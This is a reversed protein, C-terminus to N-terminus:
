MPRPRRRISVIHRDHVTLLRRAPDSYCAIEFIRDRLARLGIDVASLPLGRGLYLTSVQDHLQGHLEGDDAADLAWTVRRLLKQRFDNDSPSSSLWLGLQTGKFLEKLATRLPATDASRAALSWYTLGGVEGPFKYEREVAVGGNAIFTLRAGSSVLARSWFRSIAERVDVSRLSYRTPGSSARSAKVQVANAGDASMIAYDESVELWLEEEQRLNLWAGLTQLLQYRFGHLAHV